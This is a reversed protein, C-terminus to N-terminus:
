KFIEKNCLPCVFSVSIEYKMSSVYFIYGCYSCFIKVADDIDDYMFDDSDFYKFM